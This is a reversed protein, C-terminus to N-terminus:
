AEFEVIVPLHDSAVRALELRSRHAHLLRLDGRYFVKDLGGAPAYSPFSKISWRSGRRRDTACRFGTPKFHQRKLVGRWDNMDGAIICPAALALRSVDPTHLLQDVQVRREPTSLGM